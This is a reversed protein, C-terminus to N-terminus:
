NKAYNREEMEYIFTEELNLPMFDILVPNLTKYYNEIEEKDGKAIITYISMMKSIHIIKFTSNQPKLLNGDIKGDKFAIQLKFMYPDSSDTSGISILEGNHIMACKDCVENLERLNHSSIVLTMKRKSMEDFIITKIVNRMAPDLGDFSEDMLLYETNCSLAIITIAQRKMGKSFSYLKKHIPLNLKQCLNNFLEDSFKSYFKKYFAKLENLSLTTFQATEDDIFFIKQKATPNNFVDEGDIEAMGSDAQYIGSILRLLTSKGAGNSGVLAFSSNEEINFSINKIIEKNDLSKSINKLKIM